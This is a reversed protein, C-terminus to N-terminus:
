RRYEVLVELFVQGKFMALHCNSCLVRLFAVYRRKILGVSFFSNMSSFDIGAIYRM